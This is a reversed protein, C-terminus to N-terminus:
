KDIQFYFTLFHFCKAKHKLKIIFLLNIVYPSILIDDVSNLLLVNLFDIIKYTLFGKNLNLFQKYVSCENIHSRMVM